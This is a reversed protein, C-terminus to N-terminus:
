QRRCVTLEGSKSLMFSVGAIARLFIRECEDDHIEIAMNDVKGVWQEYNRAFVEAEAREIDIKLISITKFGSESLLSGLDVAPIDGNEGSFCERVQRAWERGDLYPTENMRLQTSHSWIGARILRVRDRYPALNCELVAYNGPDPEVAILHANPYRQLFYLASYGVNAGCDIILGPDRVHNLCAYAHAQFVGRFVGVDSTHPRFYVPSSLGPAWLRYYNKDNKGLRCLRQFLVNLTNRIGVYKVLKLLLQLNTKVSLEWGCM